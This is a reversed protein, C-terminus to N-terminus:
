LQNSGPKPRDLWFLYSLNVYVDGHTLMQKKLTIKLENPSINKELLM